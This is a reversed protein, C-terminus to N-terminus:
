DKFETSFIYINQILYTQHWSQKQKIMYLKGTHQSYNSATNFDIVVAGRNNKHKKTQKSKTSTKKFIVFQINSYGACQKTKCETIFM